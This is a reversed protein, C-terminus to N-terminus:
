SKLELCYRSTRVLVSSLDSLIDFLHALIFHSHDVISLSHKTNEEMRRPTGKIAGLCSPAMSLMELLCNKGETAQRVQCDPAGGSVTRHPDREKNSSASRQLNRATPAGSVTRHWRVTRHGKQGNAGAVCRARIGRGVTPGASQQSV